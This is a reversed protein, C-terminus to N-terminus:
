SVEVTQLLSYGVVALGSLSLGADEGEGVLSHGVVLAGIIVGGGGPTGSGCISAPRHHGVAPAVAVM